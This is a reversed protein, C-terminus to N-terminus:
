VEMTKHEIVDIRQHARVATEKADKIGMETGKVFMGVKFMFTIFGVVVSLNGVIAVGLLTYFSTPIQAEM